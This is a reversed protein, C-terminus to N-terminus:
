KEVVIRRRRVEMLCHIYYPLTVFIGVWFIIQLSIMFFVISLIKMRKSLKRFKPIALLIGSLFSSILYGGVFIGAVFYGIRQASSWEFSPEHLALATLGGYLFAGTAFAVTVYLLYNKKEGYTMM